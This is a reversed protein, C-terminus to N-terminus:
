SSSSRRLWLRYRDQTSMKSQWFQPSTRVVSSANRATGANIPKALLYREGLWEVAKERASNYNAEPLTGQDAQEPDAM